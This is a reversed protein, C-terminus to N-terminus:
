QQEPNTQPPEENTNGSSDTSTDPPPVESEGTDRVYSTVAPDINFTLVFAVNGDRNVSLGSFIPNIIERARALEDSQLAISSYSKAEGTMVVKSPVGTGREYIFSTFRVSQVTLREIADFVPVLTMHQALLADGAKMKRDLESLGELAEPEFAAKKKQLSATLTEVQSKTVSRYAYAGGWGGVSLLFLLVAIVLFLSVPHRRAKSPTALTTKPIFSHVQDM